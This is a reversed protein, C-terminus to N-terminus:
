DSVDELGTCTDSVRVVVCAGCVIAVARWNAAKGRWPIRRLGEGAVDGYVWPRDSGPVGRRMADTDERDEDADELEGWVDSM